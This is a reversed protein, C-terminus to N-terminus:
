LVGIVTVFDLSDDCIGSLESSDMSCNFAVSTSTCPLLSWSVASVM